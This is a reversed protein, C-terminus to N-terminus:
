RSSPKARSVTFYNWMCRKWCNCWFLVSDLEHLKRVWHLGQDNKIAFQVVAFYTARQSWGLWPPRQQASSVPGGFTLLMARSKWMSTRYSLFHWPSLAQGGKKMALLRLTMNIATTSTTKQSTIQVHGKESAVSRWRKVSIEKLTRPESTPEIGAAPTKWPGYFFFCQQSRCRASKTCFEFPWFSICSLRAKAHLISLARLVVAGAISLSSINM